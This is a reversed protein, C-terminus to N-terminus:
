SLPTKRLVKQPFRMNPLSRTKNLSGLGLRPNESEGLECIRRRIKNQESNEAESHKDRHLKIELIWACM